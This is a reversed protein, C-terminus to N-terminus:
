LDADQEGLKKILQENEEFLNKFGEFLNKNGEILLRNTKLLKENQEKLKRNEKFLIGVDRQLLEERPTENPPVTNLASKIIEEENPMYASAVKNKQEFHSKNVQKEFAELEKKRQVKAKEDREMDWQVMEAKSMQGGFYRSEQNRAIQEECCNMVKLNSDMINEGCLCM